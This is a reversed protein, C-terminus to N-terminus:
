GRGRLTFTLTGGSTVHVTTCPSGATDVQRVTFTKKADDPFDSATIAQQVRAQATQTSWCQTLSPRLSAAIKRTETDDSPVSPVAELHVSHDAPSAGALWCLRTGPGYSGATTAVVVPWGTVGSRAVVQEAKARAGAQDLCSVPLGDVFDGLAENLEILEPDQQEGATLRQYGDPAPEDAPYVEVRGSSHQYAVLAPAPGGTAHQWAIRCNEVPDGTPGAIDLPGGQGPISCYTLSEHRPSGFAGIAFASGAGVVLVSAAVATLTGVRRRNRPSPHPSRLIDALLEDSADSHAAVTGAPVPNISHLLDSNM